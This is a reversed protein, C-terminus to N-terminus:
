FTQCYSKEVTVQLDRSGKITDHITKIDKLVEELSDQEQSLTLLAKAYRKAAKSSIM